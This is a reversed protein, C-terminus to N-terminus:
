GILAVKHVEVVVLFERATRSLRGERPLGYVDDRCCVGGECRERGREGVGMIENRIEGNKVVEEVGRDLRM